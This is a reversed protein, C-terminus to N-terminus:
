PVQIAVDRSAGAAEVHLTTAGPSVAALEGRNGTGRNFVLFDAPAVIWDGSVTAVTADDTTIDFGRTAQLAAGRADRAVVSYMCGGQLTIATIPRDVGDETLSCTFDIAAADRVHIPLADVLEGNPQKVRVEADGVALAQLDASYSFTVPGKCASSLPLVCGGTGDDCCASEQASVDLVAPNSSVVSYVDGLADGEIDLKESTGALLPSDAACGFFCEEFSTYAFGLRGQTGSTSSGFSGIGVPSCGVLPIAVLSLLLSPAASTKM